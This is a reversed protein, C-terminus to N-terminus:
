VLPRSVLTRRAADDIRGKPISGDANWKMFDESSPGAGLYVDTGANFTAPDHPNLVAGEDSIFFGKFGLTDEALSKM